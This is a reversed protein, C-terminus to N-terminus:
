KPEMQWKVGSGFQLWIINDAPAVPAPFTYSRKVASFMQRLDDFLPEAGKQDALAHFVLTGNIIGEASKAEVDQPRVGINRLNGNPCNSGLVGASIITMSTDGIGQTVTDSPETTLIWCHADPGIARRFKMFAGVTGTLLGFQPDRFNPEYTKKLLKKNLDAIEASQKTIQLNLPSKAVVLNYHDLWLERVAAWSFIAGYVLLFALASPVLTADFVQKLHASFGAKGEKRIRMLLAIVFVLVIAIAPAFYGLITTGLSDTYHRFVRAAFHWVHLRMAAATDPYSPM